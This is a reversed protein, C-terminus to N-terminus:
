IQFLETLGTFHTSPRIQIAGLTFVSTEAFGPYQLSFLSSQIDLRWLVEAISESSKRQELQQGARFVSTTMLTAWVLEWKRSLPHRFSDWMTYLAVSPPLELLCGWAGAGHATM